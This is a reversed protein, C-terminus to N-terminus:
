PVHVSDQDGATVNEIRIDTNQLDVNRRRGRSGRHCLLALCHIAFSVKARLWSVISVYDEGKKILLLEALRNRYRKCEEAMGGTTTFVLPTFTGQEVEM